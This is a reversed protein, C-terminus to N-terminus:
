RSSSPARPPPLGDWPPSSPFSPYTSLRSPLFLVTLYVFVTLVDVAVVCSSLPLIVPSHHVTFAPISLASIRKYPNHIAHLVRDLNM